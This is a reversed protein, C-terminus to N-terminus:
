TTKQKSVADRFQERMLGVGVDVTWPAFDNWRSMMGEALGIFVEPQRWRVGRVIARAVQDATAVGMGFRDFEVNEMMDTATGGPYVAMVHIGDPALERRLAESFGRMAFKSASYTAYYPVGMRGAISSINIITGTKAERMHPVVLQTLRLPAWINVGVMRGIDERDIEDIPGGTVVGANNVLVDIKGFQHVTKGVLSQLDEEKIVDCHMVEARGGSKQVEAAATHLADMRRGALVLTAGECAFELATARGIGRGGGTIIVVQDKYRAGM